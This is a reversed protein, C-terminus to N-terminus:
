EEEKKVENRIAPVSTLWAIMAELDAETLHRTSGRVVEAMAGSVVDGDPMMGAKLLLTLDLETWDGIGTEADPTINPATDGEPGDPNGALYMDEDSGGLATRPTHCAGCHALADVLYRGRALREDLGQEPRPGEELYLWRWIGLLFRMDFPFDLEHEPPENASAPQAMLHEYLAAIDGDSMRTFHDYPFSPYYTTGDPSVGERLARGLDDASWGGIGHGPDPTINPSWFTGFPTKLARGGALPAGGNEVDTHCGQCGAIRFVYDGHTQPEGGDEQAAASLGGLLALFGALAVRSSSRVSPRIAAM